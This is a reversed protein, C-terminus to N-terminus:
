PGLCTGVSHPRRPARSAHDGPTCRRARGAVPTIRRSIQACDQGSGGAPRDVLQHLRCERCPGDRFGTERRALALVDLIERDNLKLDDYTMYIKFSTYGDRILGPLEQGLVQESPDVVIMHVAYDVLANGEARGRYEDVAERLGRGRIQLAFPIVTTTGGALASRTGTFFDDACVWGDENPQDIHCHGDVGGPTVTRGEADIVQDPAKSRIRLRRSEVTAFVSTVVYSQPPPQWREEVFSPLRIYRGAEGNPKWPRNTAVLRGFSM